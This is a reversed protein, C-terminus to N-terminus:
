PMTVVYPQSSFLIFACTTQQCVDKKTQRMYRSRNVEKEGKQSDHILAAAARFQTAGSVDLECACGGTGGQRAKSM